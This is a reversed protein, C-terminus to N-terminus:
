WSQALFGRNAQQNGQQHEVNVEEFGHVVTVTVL